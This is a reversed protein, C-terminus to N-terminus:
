IPSFVHCGPPPATKEIHIYHFCTFVRSTVNKQGINAEQIRRNLEFITRILLFVHGGPPPPPDNERPTVNTTLHEHFKTLIYSIEASNSFPEPGNFFLAVLPPSTKRIHSYYVRTLVRSIVNITWDEHISGFIQELSLHSVPPPATKARSIVNITFDEHFKTRLNTLKNFFM